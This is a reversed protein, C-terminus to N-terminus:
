QPKRPCWASPLLIQLLVEPPCAGWGRKVDLITEILRGQYDLLFSDVQLAPSILEIGPNPLYGPTPFSLM